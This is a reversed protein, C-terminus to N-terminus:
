TIMVNDCVNKLLLPNVVDNQIGYDHMVFKIQLMLRPRHKPPTGKHFCSPDEVFGFGAKGCLTEIKEADYYDIIDQDTRKRFVTFCDTLKKKKHSGRVCVHAGNSADVDTLYFFFKLFRYDDLDYHFVQAFRSQDYLTPELVYSWWLRNESHIPEVNLYRAAIELLKPDNELKKIAPCLLATNFYQGCVFPKGYKAEAKEKESSFFGLQYNSNGYCNGHKAFELIEEVVAKPLNIGSYLGDRKLSALVDDVNLEEFISHNRNYNKLVPHKSFFVVISRVIEFRSLIFMLLWKYNALSYKSYRYLKFRTKLQFDRLNRIFIVIPQKYM